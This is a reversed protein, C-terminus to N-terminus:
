LNSVIKLVLSTLKPEAESAVKLIEEFNTPKLSDPLCRDTIVSIGLVKLKSQVAVIVEPVTSMTVMDAGIGKLFRYEAKTELNPGSVGVLIGKKLVIKEELAIKEALSILDPDYPSSMDPFREGLREDNLGILPNNGSLGVLSIHDKILVIDGPFFDPNMGGAANSEILIKAGLAKIVRVPFTIEKISYGEYAHFRGQLAVVKKEGIKGLILNGLHSEVTSIPFNPIDKYPISVKEEIKEGLPSLGTGLIIGIEPTITTRGLIARKAEEIREWLNDM